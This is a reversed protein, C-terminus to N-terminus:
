RGNYEWKGMMNLINWEIEWRGNDEGDEMINGMINGTYMGEPLKVYSHFIM